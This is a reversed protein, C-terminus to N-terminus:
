IGTVAPRPTGSAKRPSSGEAATVARPPLEAAPLGRPKPVSFSAPPEGRAGGTGAAPSNLAPRQRRARM